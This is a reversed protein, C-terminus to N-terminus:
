AEAKPTAPTTGNASNSKPAFDAWDSRNPVPLGAAVWRDRLVPMGHMWQAVCQRTADASGFVAICNDRFAILDKVEDGPEDEEAILRESFIEDLMQAAAEAVRTALDQKTSKKITETATKAAAKSSQPLGDLCSHFMVSHVYGNRTLWAWSVTAYDEDEGHEEQQWTEVIQDSWVEMIVDRQNLVGEVEYDPEIGAYNSKAKQAKFAKCGKLHISFEHNGTGMLLPTVTVPTKLVTPKAPKAPPATPTVPPKVTNM